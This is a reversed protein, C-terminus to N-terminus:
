LPLQSKDLDHMNLPALKRNRLKDVRVKMGPESGM